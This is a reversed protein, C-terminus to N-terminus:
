QLKITGSEIFTTLDKILLEIMNNTTDKIIQDTSDLAKISEVFTDDPESYM